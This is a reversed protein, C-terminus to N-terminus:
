LNRPQQAMQSLAKELEIRVWDQSDNIRNHGNIKSGLWNPGIIALVVSSFLLYESIAETFDVGPEIKNIDLFIQDDYFYQKLSDVLRGTEGSTDERRYSLFINKEKANLNTHM